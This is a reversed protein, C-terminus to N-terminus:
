RRLIGIEVSMGPMLLGKVERDVGIEVPVRQVVKTFEGATIQRPILAFEAASAPLLRTVRGQIRRGGLADVWIDVPQGVAVGQLKTEELDAVVHITDPDYLAFLPRGPSAFDGPNVFKKAVVGAVPAEIRTHSLEVQARELKRRNVELAARAVELGKRAEKLRGEAVEIRSKQAQAKRLRAEAARVAERARDLAAKARDYRQQAVAGQELLAKLRREEKRALWLASRAAALGARAEDVASAVERRTLELAKAAVEVRVRAADFERRAQAVGARRVEVAARYPAPDIRALLQGKEVPQAEKVLVEAITGAVLPAVTVMDAKVFAADTVAHTFRYHLWLAGWVLGALAVAAVLLYAWRRSQKKGGSM